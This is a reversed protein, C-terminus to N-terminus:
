PTPAGIDLTYITPLDEAQSHWIDNMFKVLKNYAEKKAEKESTDAPHIQNKFWFYSVSKVIESIKENYDNVFYVWLYRVTGINRINTASPVDQIAYHYGWVNPAGPVRNFAEAIEENTLMKPM